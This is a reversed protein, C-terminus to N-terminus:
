KKPTPETAPSKVAEISIGTKPDRKISYLINENAAPCPFNGSYIPQNPNTPDFVSIRRQAGVTPTDRVAEGAFLRQPRGLRPQGGIVTSEQIIITDKTDNRVSMWGAFVDSAGALAVLCGLLSCCGFYRLSLSM